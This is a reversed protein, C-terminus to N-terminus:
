AELSRNEAGIARREAGFPGRTTLEHVVTEGLDFTRAISETSGLDAMKIAPEASLGHPISNTNLRSRRTSRPPLVAPSPLWYIAPSASSFQSARARIKAPTPAWVP